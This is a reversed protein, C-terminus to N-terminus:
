VTLKRRLSLKRSKRRALFGVMGLGGAFLPLAAPLPTAAPALQMSVTGGITSGIGTGYLQFSTLGISSLTDMNDMASFGYISTVTPGNFAVDLVSTYINAGITFTVTPTDLQYGTTPVSITFPSSTVTFDALPSGTILTGSKQTLTIDFTMTSARAPASFGVTLLGACLLASVGLKKM